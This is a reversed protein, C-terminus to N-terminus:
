PRFGQPPPPPSPTSPPSGTIEVPGVISTETPKDDVRRALQNTTDANIRDTKDNRFVSGVILGLLPGVTIGIDRVLQAADETLLDNASLILATIAVAFYGLIMFLGLIIRESLWDNATKMAM